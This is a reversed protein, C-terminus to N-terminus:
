ADAVPHPSARLQMAYEFVHSGPPEFRGLLGVNYYSPRLHNYCGEYPEPRILTALFIRYAELDALENPSLTQVEQKHGYKAKNIEVETWWLGGPEMVAKIEPDALISEIDFLSREANWWSQRLLGHAYSRVSTGNAVFYQGGPKCARFFWLLMRDAINNLTRLVAVRHKKEARNIGHYAILALEDISFSRDTDRLVTAVAREIRGLGRSM